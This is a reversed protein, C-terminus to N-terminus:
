SVSSSASCADSYRGSDARQGRDAEGCAGGRPARTRDVQFPADREDGARRAAEAERERLLERRVARLEDDARAALLLELARPLLERCSACVDERLRAVDRIARLDFREDRLRELAVSADVDQDVVGAHDLDPREGRLRV